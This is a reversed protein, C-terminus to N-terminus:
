NFSLVFNDDFGTKLAMLPVFGKSLTYTSCAVGRPFSSTLAKQPAEKKMWLSVTTHHMWFSREDSGDVANRLAVVQLQLFM